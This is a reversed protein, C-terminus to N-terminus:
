VTGNREMEMYRDLSPYDHYDALVAGVDFTVDVLPDHAGLDLFMERSLKRAEADAIEDLLPRIRRNQTETVTPIVMSRLIACWSCVAVINVVGYQVEPHDGGERM